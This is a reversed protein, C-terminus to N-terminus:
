QVPHMTNTETKYTPPLRTSIIGAFFFLLFGVCVRCALFRWLSADIVSPSYMKKSLSFINKQEDM